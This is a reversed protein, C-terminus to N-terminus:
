PRTDPGLTNRYLWRNTDGDEASYEDIGYSATEGNVHYEWWDCVGASYALCSLGPARVNDISTVFRDDGVEDHSWEAICGEDVAADLVDGGDAGEPVEVTCEGTGPVADPAQSAELGARATPHTEVVLDIEATDSPSAATGPLTVGVLAAAALVVIATRLKM